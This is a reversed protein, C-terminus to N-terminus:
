WTQGEGSDNCSEHTLNNGVIGLCSENQKFRVLLLASSGSSPMSSPVATPSVKPANTPSVTPTGTPSTTPISTPSVTPSSTPSSTPSNSPTSTLSDTPAGTPSATRAITEQVTPSPTHHPSSTPPAILTLSVEDIQVDVNSPVGNIYLFASYAAEDYATILYSGSIQNWEKDNEIM